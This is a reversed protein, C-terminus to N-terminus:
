VIERTLFPLFYWICSLTQSEAGTFLHSTWFPRASMTNTGFFTNSTFIFVNQLPFPQCKTVTAHSIFDPACRFMKIFPSYKCQMRPNWFSKLVKLFFSSIKWHPVSNQHRNMSSIAIFTCRDVSYFSEFCYFQEVPFIPSPLSLRFGDCKIM